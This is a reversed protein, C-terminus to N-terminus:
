VPPVFFFCSVYTKKFIDQKITKVLSHLCKVNKVFLLFFSFSILLIELIHLYLQFSHIQSSRMDTVAAVDFLGVGAAIYVEVGWNITELYSVIIELYSVITQYM